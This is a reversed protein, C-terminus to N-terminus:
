RTPQTERGSLKDAFGRGWLMVVRFSRGALIANRLFHLDGAVLAPNISADVHLGAFV